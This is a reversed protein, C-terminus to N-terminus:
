FGMMSQYMLFPALSTHEYYVPNAGNDVKMNGRSTVRLILTSMNLTTSGTQSTGQGQLHAAPSTLIIGLNPIYRGQCHLLHLSIESGQFMHCSYTFINDAMNDLQVNKICVEVSLYFFDLYVMFVM